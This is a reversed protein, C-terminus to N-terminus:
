CSATVFFAKLFGGTQYFYQGILYDLGMPEGSPVMSIEGSYCRELIM